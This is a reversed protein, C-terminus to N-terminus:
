FSQLTSSRPQRRLAMLAQLRGVGGWLVNFDQPWLRRRLCATGLGLGLGALCRATASVMWPIIQHPAVTRLELTGIAHGNVVERQIFWRRTMRATSFLEDVTAEATCWFTTGHARLEAFLATDEGGMDFSADFRPWGADEMASRPVLTNGAGVTPLEGEPRGQSWQQLLERLAPDSTPTSTYDVMGAVVSGPHRDRHSVLGELWGERVTQDDDLFILDSYTGAAFRDLITNRAATLGPAVNLVSVRMGPFDGIPM